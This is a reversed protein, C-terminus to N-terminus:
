SQVELRSLGPFRSVYIQIEIRDVAGVILEELWDVDCRYLAFRAYLYLSNAPAARWSRPHAHPPYSSIIADLTSPLAPLSFVLFTHYPPSAKLLLLKTTLIGVRHNM